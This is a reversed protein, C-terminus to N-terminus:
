LYLSILQRFVDRLEDIIAERYDPERYYYYVLMSYDTYLREIRYYAYGIFFVKEKAEDPLNYKRFTSASKCYASKFSKCANIFLSKIAELHYEILANDINGIIFDNLQCALDQSIRKIETVNDEIIATAKKLCNNM